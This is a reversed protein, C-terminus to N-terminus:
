TTEKRPIARIVGVSSLNDLDAATTVPLACISLRHFWRKGDTDVRWLALSKNKVGAVIQEITLKDECVYRLEDPLDSMNNREDSM